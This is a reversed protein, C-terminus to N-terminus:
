VLLVGFSFGVRGVWGVVRGRDYIDFRYVLWVITM